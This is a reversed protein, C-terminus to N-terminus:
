FALETILVLNTQSLEVWKKTQFSLQVFYIQSLGVKKNTQKYLYCFKNSVIWGTQKDTQLSSLIFKLCDLRNTCLM